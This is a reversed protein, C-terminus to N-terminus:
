REGGGCGGGRRGGRGTGGCPVGGEGFGWGTRRSLRLVRNGEEVRGAGSGRDEGRGHLLSGRHSASAERLVVRPAPKVSPLSSPGRESATGKM